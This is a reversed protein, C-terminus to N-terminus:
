RQAEAVVRRDCSALVEIQRDVWRLQEETGRQRVERVTRAALKGGGADAAEAESMGAATLLWVRLPRPDPRGFDDPLNECERWAPVKATAVARFAKEKTVPAELHIRWSGAGLEADASVFELKTPTKVGSKAMSNLADRASTRLTPLADSFEDPVCIRPTGGACSQADTRPVTPTFYGADAVLAQAPLAFVALCAVALGGRLVRSRLGSSAVVVASVIGLAVLTPAWLTNPALADTATPSDVPVGTLYRM